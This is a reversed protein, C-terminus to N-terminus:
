TVSLKREFETSLSHLDCVCVCVCVCVCRSIKRESDLGHKRLIESHLTQTAKKSRFGLSFTSWKNTACLPYSEILCISSVCLKGKRHPCGMNYSPHSITEYDEVLQTGGHLAFSLSPDLVTIYSRRQEWSEQHIMEPRLPKWNSIMNKIISCWQNIGRKFNPARVMLWKPAPLFSLNLHSYQNSAMSWMAAVCGECHAGQSIQHCIAINRRM